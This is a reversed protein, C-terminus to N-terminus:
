SSFQGSGTDRLSFTFTDSDLADQNPSNFVLLDNNIDVVDIVQGATVPTGNLELVGDAPLTDIRVADVPDNEPDAYTPTTQTTFMALTLITSARNDVSITNDGVQSPPQNIYAGSNITFNGMNDKILNEIELINIGLSKICCFLSDKRFVKNLYNIDETSTNLEEFFYLALYDLALLKKLFVEDFISLGTMKEKGINCQLEQEMLCLTNNQIAELFASGMPSTLAIYGKMKTTLSLLLKCDDNGLDSCDSCGCDCGCLVEFLDEILSDRLIKYDKIVVTSQTNSDDFVLTYKGDKKPKFTYSGGGTITITEIVSPSTCDQTLSISLNVENTDTNEIIYSDESKNITFQIM